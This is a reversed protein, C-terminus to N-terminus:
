QVNADLCIGYHDSPFLPLWTDPLAENAFLKAEVPNLIGGNHTKNETATKNITTNITNRNFLLIRDLRM